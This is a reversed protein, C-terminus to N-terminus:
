IRNKFIYLTFINENPQTPPHPLQSKIFPDVVAILEAHISNVDVVQGHNEFCVPDMKEAM